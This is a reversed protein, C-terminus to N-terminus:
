MYGDYKREPLPEVQTQEQQQKTRQKRNQTIAKKKKKITKSVAADRGEGRRGGWGARSARPGAGRAGRRGTGAPVPACPQCEVSPLWEEELQARDTATKGQTAERRYIGRERDGRITGM